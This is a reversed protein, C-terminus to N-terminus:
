SNGKDAEIKYRKLDRSKALCFQLLKPVNSLLLHAAEKSYPLPEDNQDEFGEWELVVNNAVFDVARQHRVVASVSEDTLDTIAEASQIFNANEMGMYALKIRAKGIIDFWVGEKVKDPDYGAYDRYINAM